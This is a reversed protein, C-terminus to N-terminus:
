LIVCEHFQGASLGKGRGDVGSKISDLATSKLWNQLATDNNKQFGLKTLFFTRCISKMADVGNLFYFYSNGDRTVEAHKRLLCIKNQQMYCLAAVSM